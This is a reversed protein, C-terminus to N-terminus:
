QKCSRLGTAPRAENRRPREVFYPPRGVSRRPVPAALLHREGLWATATQLAQGYDHPPLPLASEKPRKM